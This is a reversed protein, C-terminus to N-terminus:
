KGRVVSLFAEAPAGDNSKQIRSAVEDVLAEAVPPTGLAELSDRLIAAFRRQMTRNFKTSPYRM